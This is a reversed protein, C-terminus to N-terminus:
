TSSDTKTSAVSIESPRWGNALRGAKTKEPDNHYEFDQARVGFYVGGEEGVGVENGDDDVIHLEGSVTKGVTGKHTSGSRPRRMASVTARPEQMTSM